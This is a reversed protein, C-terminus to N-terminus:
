EEATSSFSVFSSVAGGGGSGGFHLSSISQISSRFSMFSPVNGRGGTGGFIQVAFFQHVTYIVLYLVDLTNVIM